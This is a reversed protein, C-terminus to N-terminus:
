AAQRLACATVTTRHASSAKPNFYALGCALVFLCILGASNVLAVPVVERGWYDLGMGCIYSLCMAAIFIPLSQQGIQIVRRAPWNTLLRPMSAVLHTVLYALALLHLLRLLGLHSKDLLPTLLGRVEMFFPDRRYTTQFELPAAALVLVICPLAIGWNWRPRPIYGGGFAFGTFFVLQWCLPNFYWPRNIAADAMLEWGFAWTAAYLALPAILMLAKHLRALAWMLPVMAMVVLYMPLIDFYNPVYSLTMLRAMTEEWNAYAYSLNLGRMYDPGIGSANGALCILLMLVFMLLHAGYIQACRYLVRGTGTIWDRDLRRGYALASVFGSIFVFIETADSVGYRSPTGWYWPNNPMHNIFIVILALGRFFDLTVNRPRVTGSAASVSAPPVPAKM